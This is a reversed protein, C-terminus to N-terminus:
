GLGDIIAQASPRDAAVCGAALAAILARPFVPFIRERSTSRAGDMYTLPM